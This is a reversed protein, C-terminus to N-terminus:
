KGECRGYFDCYVACFTKAPRDPRPMASEDGQAVAVARERLDRLHNLWHNATDESFPHPGWVVIDDRTGDRCLGIIEDTEIPIGAERAMGGYLMAQGVKGPSPFFRKDKKKITKLDVLNQDDVFIVDSNGDALGMEAIGPLRQELLFRDGFPDLQRLADEAGEHVMTGMWAPLGETRNTPEVGLIQYVNARDCGDCSSPSLLRLGEEIQVTRKSQRRAEAQEIADLIIGLSKSTNSTGETLPNDHYKM